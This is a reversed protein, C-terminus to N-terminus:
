HAALGMSHANSGRRAPGKSCRLNRLRPGHDTALVYDGAKPQGKKGKGPYIM